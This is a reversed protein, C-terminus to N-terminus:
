TTQKLRLQRTHGTKLDIIGIDNNGQEDQHRYTAVITKSKREHNYVDFITPLTDTQSDRDYPITRGAVIDVGLDCVFAELALYAEHFDMEREIYKGAKLQVFALTDIGLVDPQHFEIVKKIAKLSLSDSYELIRIDNTENKIERIYRERLEQIEIETTLLLVKKGRESEEKLKEVLAHMRGTGPRGLLLHIAM